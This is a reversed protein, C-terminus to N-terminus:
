TSAQGCHNYVKSNWWRLNTRPWLCSKRIARLLAGLVDLTSVYRQETDFPIDVNGPRGTGDM